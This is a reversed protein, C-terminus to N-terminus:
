GKQPKPRLQYYPAPHDPPGTMVEHTGLWSALRADHGWPARTYGEQHEGADLCEAFDLKTLTRDMADHWEVLALDRQQEGVEVYVRVWAVYLAMLRNREGRHLFWCPAIATSTKPYETVLWQLWQALREMRERREDAPM